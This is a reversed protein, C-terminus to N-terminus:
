GARTDEERISRKCIPCTSKQRTLWVDICAAHFGHLCPLLRLVDGEAYPELCVACTHPAGSGEAGSGEAAAAESGGAKAGDALSAAIAAELDVDEQSRGGASAGASAGARAALLAPLSPLGGAGEAAAAAAAAKKARFVYTPLRSIEAPHAAGDPGAQPPLLEDLRGLLDYDRPSFDADGRQAVLVALAALHSLRADSVGARQAAALAAHLEAVGAARAEEANAAAAEAATSRQERLRVVRARRRGERGRLCCCLRSAVAAPCADALVRMTNFVVGGALTAFFLFTLAGAPAVALVLLILLLAGAVLVGHLRRRSGVARVAREYLTPAAPPEAEGEGSSGAAASGDGRLLDGEEAEEDRGPSAAERSSAHMALIHAM